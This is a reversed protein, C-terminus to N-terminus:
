ARVAEVLPMKRTSKGDIGVIRDGPLVGAKHAPTGEIPSVVTLMGDKVSIELGLGGFEGTTDIKIDRYLEPGLFSSHPDLTQLMGQIAGHLLKKADVGEVYNADVFHLVRAFLDLSPYPEAAAAPAKPTEATRAAPSALLCIVFLSVFTSSRPMFVELFRWHYWARRRRRAKRRGSGTFDRM